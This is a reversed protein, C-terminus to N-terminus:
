GVNEIEKFSVITGSERELEFVSEHASSGAADSLEYQHWYIPNSDDGLNLSFVSLNYTGLESNLQNIAEHMRTEEKYLAAKLSKDLVGPKKVARKLGADLPLYGALNQLNLQNAYDGAAQLSNQFDLSVYESGLMRLQRDISDVVTAYATGIGPQNMLMQEDVRKFAISRYTTEAELNDNVFCSIIDEDSKATKGFDIFSLGLTIVLAGLLLNGILKKNM